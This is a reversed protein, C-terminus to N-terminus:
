SRLRRRPSERGPGREREQVVVSAAIDLAACFGSTTTPLTFASRSSSLRRGARALSDARGATADGDRAAFARVLGGRRRQQAVGRGEDALRAAVRGCRQKTVRQSLTADGQFVASRHVRGRPLRIM